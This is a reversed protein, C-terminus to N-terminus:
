SRPPLAEEIECLNFSVTDGNEMELAIPDNNLEGECYDQDLKTIKFWVHEKVPYGREDRCHEPVDVSVKVFWGVGLEAPLEEAEMPQPAHTECVTKINSLPEEM